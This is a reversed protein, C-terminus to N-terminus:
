HVIGLYSHALWPGTFVAAAAGSALFPGFPIATKRSRGALLAAVAGLGGALIGAAAAVAVASLGRSGVVLGILAALKVDGMGMGKPAVLAMALLGGGFLLVGALSGVFDVDRGLLAGLGLGGGLLLLTPYIVANPIL